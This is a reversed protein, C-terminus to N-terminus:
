CSQLWPAIILPLQLADGLVARALDPLGTGVLMRPLWTIREFISRNRRLSVEDEAGGDVYEMEFRPLRRQAVRHVEEVSLARRFDSGAYYRRSM